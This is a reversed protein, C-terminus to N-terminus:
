QRKSLDAPDQNKIVFGAAALAELRSNIEQESVDFAQALQEPTFYGIGDEDYMSPILIPFSNQMLRGVQEKAKQDIHEFLYQMAAHVLFSVKGKSKEPSFEAAQLACEM